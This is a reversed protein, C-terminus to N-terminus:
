MIAILQQVFFIQDGLSKEVIYLDLCIFCFLLDVSGRKKNICVNFRKLLSVNLTILAVGFAVM